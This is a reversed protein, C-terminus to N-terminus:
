LRRLDAMLKEADKMAKKIKRMLKANIDFPSPLPAPKKRNKKM